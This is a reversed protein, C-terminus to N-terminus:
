ANRLLGGEVRLAAGNTASARPSALYAVLASVEDARAFRKLLSTPRLKALFEAQAAEPDPRQGVVDNLFTTVGESLTPGPLVSNVTVATGATTEALGRALAVQAAKSVGYHIMDSPINIATESAVFIVRGWGRAKMGPLYVQTLRAGSLTNVEFMRLWDERGIEELNRAEFVGLNNVLIDVEPAFAQLRAIGAETSLDAALGVAAPGEHPNGQLGSFSALAELASRVREETRGNIIVRAGERKLERAIELGIGATSASVLATKGDLQLNM